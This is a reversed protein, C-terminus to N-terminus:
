LYVVLEDALCHWRKVEEKFVCDPVIEKPYYTVTHKRTYLDYYIVEISKPIKKQLQYLTELKM